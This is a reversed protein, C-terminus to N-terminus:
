LEVRRISEVLNRAGLDGSVFDRIIEFVQESVTCKWRALM